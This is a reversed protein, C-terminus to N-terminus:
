STGGFNVVVGAAASMAVMLPYVGGDALQIAGVIVVTRDRLTISVDCGSVYEIARAEAILSQRWSELEGPGLTGNDLGRLDVGRGRAAPNGGRVQLWSRAVWEVVVRPGRIRQDSLDMALETSGSPAFTTYDVLESLALTM